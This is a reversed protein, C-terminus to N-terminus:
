RALHPHGMFSSYQIMLLHTCTNLQTLSCGLNPVQFAFSSGSSVLQVAQYVILNYLKDLTILAMFCIAWDLLLSDGRGFQDERYPSGQIPSGAKALGLWSLSKTEIAVVLQKSARADHMLILHHSERIPM